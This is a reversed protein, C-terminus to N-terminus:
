REPGGSSRRGMLYGLNGIIILVIIFVHAWSQVNMIAAAQGPRQVLSEMEAAGKAGVLMGKMQGSDLYPYSGPAMVATVAAAFPVRHPGQILSIWPEIVGALGTVEIVLGIQKADEIGQMMPLETVPTNNVDNGVAQPIDKALTLLVNRFGIKYGWNCWDEGYTADYEDAVDEAITHALKHGMPAAINLIAFRKNQEFCAHM